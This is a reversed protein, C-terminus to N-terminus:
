KTQQPFMATTLDLQCNSAHKTVSAITDAIKFVTVVVPTSKVLRGLFPTYPYGTCSVVLDSGRKLKTNKEFKQQLPCNRCQEEFHEAQEYTVKGDNFVVLYQDVNVNPLLFIERSLSFLHTLQESM